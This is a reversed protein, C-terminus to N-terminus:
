RLCALRQEIGEGDEAGFTLTDHTAAGYSYDELCVSQVEEDIVAGFMTPSTPREDFNRSSYSRSLIVEVKANASQRALHREKPSFHRSSPPISGTPVAPIPRAHEKSM